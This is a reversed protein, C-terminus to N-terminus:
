YEEHEEESIYTLQQVYDVLARFVSDELYITNLVEIGNESTLVLM